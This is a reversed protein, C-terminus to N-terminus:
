SVSEREALKKLAELAPPWMDAMVDRYEPLTDLEVTLTTVGGSESFTYIEHSGAIAKSMESETDDVGDVVEGEYRISVYEDRRSEEIVGFMGGDATGDDSPGVFRIRDGTNWGGVYYSGEHFAGTWERYTEDDLMTSWVAHAPADIDTTFTLREWTSDNM